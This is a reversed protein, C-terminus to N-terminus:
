HLRRKGPSWFFWSCVEFVFILCVKLCQRCNGGFSLLTLESVSFQFKQYKSIWLLNLFASIGMLSYYFGTEVTHIISAFLEYKFLEIHDPTLIYNWLNWQFFLCGGWHLFHNCFFGISKAFLCFKWFVDPM